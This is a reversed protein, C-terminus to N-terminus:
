SVYPIASISGLFRGRWGEGQVVVVVSLVRGPLVGCSIGVEITAIGRVIGHAVVAAGGAVFDLFCVAGTLGAGEESDEGAEPEAGAGFRGRTRGCATISSSSGKAFM